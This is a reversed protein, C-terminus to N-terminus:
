KRRRLFLGGLGFLVVTMPEPISQMITITDFITGAGYTVGDLINDGTAILTVLVDGAGLCTFLIDEAVILPGTKAFFDGGTIDVMTDTAEKVYPAFMWTEPFVIDAADLAAPGDIQIAVEFGTIDSDSSIALLTSNWPENPSLVSEDATLVLGASVASAMGFVVALVLLKKM